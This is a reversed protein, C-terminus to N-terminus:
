ASKEAERPVGAKDAEERILAGILAGPAYNHRSCLSVLLALTEGDMEIEVTENM